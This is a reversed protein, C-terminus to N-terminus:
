KLVKTSEQVRQVSQVAKKTGKNLSSSLLYLAAKTQRYAEEPSEPEYKDEWALIKNELSDAQQLYTMGSWFVLAIAAARLLNIVLSRRTLRRPQPKIKALVKAEVENTLRISKEQQLFQFYAKEEQWVSPLEPQAFFAKLMQEEALSTEGEWYKELLAKIQGQNYDM